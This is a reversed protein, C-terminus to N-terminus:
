DGCKVRLTQRGDIPDVPNGKKHLQQALILVRLDKRGSSFEILTDGFDDARAGDTIQLKADMRTFANAWPTLEISM